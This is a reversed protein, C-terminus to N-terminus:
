YEFGRARSPLDLVKPMPSGSFIESEIYHVSKTCFMIYMGVITVLDNHKVNYAFLYVCCCLQAVLCVLVLLEDDFTIYM